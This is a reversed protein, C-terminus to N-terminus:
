GRSKVTAATRSSLLTWDEYAKKEETEESAFAATCLMLAALLLLLFVKEAKRERM